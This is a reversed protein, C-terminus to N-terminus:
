EYMDDMMALFLPHTEGKEVYGKKRSQLRKLADVVKDSESPDLVDDEDPPIKDGDDSRRYEGRESGSGWVTKVMSQIQANAASAAALPQEVDAEEDEQYKKVRRSIDNMKIDQQEEKKESPSKGREIYKAQPETSIDHSDTNQNPQAGINSFSGIGALQLYSKNTGWNPKSPIVKSTVSPDEDQPKTAHTSADMRSDTGSMSSNPQNDTGIERDKGTKRYDVQILNNQPNHASSGQGIGDVRKNVAKKIPTGERVFQELREVGSKKQKGLLKKREEDHERKIYKREKRTTKAGGHTPTFIGANESTFVVGSLGDLAAGGDGEKLLKEYGSAHAAQAVEEAKKRSDFPGKSGWYWKGDRNSIPM